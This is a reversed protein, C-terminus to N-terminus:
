CQMVVVTQIRTINTDGLIWFDDWSDMDTNRFLRAYFWLNGDKWQLAKVNPGNDGYYLVSNCVCIAHVSRQSLDGGFRHRLNDSRFLVRLKREDPIYELCQLIGDVSATYLLSNSVDLQFYLSWDEAWNTSFKGMMKNIICMFYTIAYTKHCCKVFM